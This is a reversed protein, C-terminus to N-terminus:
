KTIIDIVKSSLKQSNIKSEVQKNKIMSLIEKIEYIMSNENQYLSILKPEKKDCTLVIKKLNSISDIWISGNEGQIESGIFSNSIKSYIINGIMDKYKLVITGVGPVGSSLNFNEKIYEIPEGFLNIALYLPYVGLDLHAGGGYQPDFINTVQNKKLLDYRSSYSCFSFLFSRVPAIKKIYKEIVKYNPLFSSKMAELLCLKKQHAIKFMEEIETTTIALPKECLVHKNNELMLITQNYHLSNPSAIYVLDIEKSKAFENLDTFINAVQYKKAFKQGSELKRSFISTVRCEKIQKTAEIFTNSIVSTGIIGIKIM